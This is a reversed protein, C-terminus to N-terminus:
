APGECLGRVQPYSTRSRLLVQGYLMTIRLVTVVPHPLLHLIEFFEMIEKVGYAGFYRGLLVESPEIIEILIMDFCGIHIIYSM